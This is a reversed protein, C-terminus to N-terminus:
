DPVGYRSTLLAAQLESKKAAGLATPYIATIQACGTSTGFAITCVQQPFKGNLRNAHLILTPRGEVDRVEKSLLQMGATLMKEKQFDDVVSQFSAGPGHAPSISTRLEKHYWLRQEKHWEFGAPASFLFQPQKSCGLNFGAAVVVVLTSVVLHRM